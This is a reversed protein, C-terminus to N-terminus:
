DPRSGEPNKPPSPVALTIGWTAPLNDTRRVPFFFPTLSLFVTDPVTEREGNEGCAASM